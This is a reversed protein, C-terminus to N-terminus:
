PCRCFRFLILFVLGVADDTDLVPPRESNKDDMTSMIEDNDEEEEDDDEDDSEGDEGEDNESDVIWAAQYESTGVPM